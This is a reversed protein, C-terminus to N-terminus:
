LSPFQCTHEVTFVKLIDSLLLLFFVQLELNASLTVTDLTLATIHGNEAFIFLSMTGVRFRNRKDM